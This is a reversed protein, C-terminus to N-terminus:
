RLFWPENNGTWCSVLQHFVCPMWGILWLWSTRHMRQIYRGLSMCCIANSCRIWFRLIAQSRDKKSVGRRYSTLHIVVFSVLRVILQAGLRATKENTWPLPFFVPRKWSAETWLKEALSTLLGESTTAFCTTQLFSWRFSRDFFFFFVVAHGSCSLIDM